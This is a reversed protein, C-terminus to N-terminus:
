RGSIMASDSRIRTDLCPLTTSSNEAISAVSSFIMYAAMWQVARPRWDILDRKERSPSGPCGRRCPAFAQCGPTSEQGLRRTLADVRFGKQQLPGRRYRLRREASTASICTQEFRTARPPTPAGQDDSAGVARRDRCDRLLQKEDRGRAENELLRIPDSASFSPADLEMPSITAVRSSVAPGGKPDRSDRAKRRAHRVDPLWPGM